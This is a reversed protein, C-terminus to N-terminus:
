LANARLGNYYIHHLFPLQTHPHALIATLVVDCLISALKWTLPMLQLHLLLHFHQLQPQTPHSISHCPATFATIVHQLLVVLHLPTLQHSHATTSFQQMVAMSLLLFTAFIPTLLIIMCYQRNIFQIRANMSIPTNCFYHTHSPLLPPMKSQVTQAPLLPPKLNLCSASLSQKLFLGRGLFIVYLLSLKSLATM